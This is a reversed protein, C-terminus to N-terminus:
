SPSFTIKTDIIWVRVCNNVSMPLLNHTWWIRNWIGGEDVLPICSKGTGQLQSLGISHSCFHCMNRRLWVLTLVLLSRYKEGKSLNDPDDNLHYLRWGVGGVLAESESQPASNGVGTQRSYSHIYSIFMRKSRGSINQPKKMAVAYALKDQSIHCKNLFSLFPLISASYFFVYVIPPFVYAKSFKGEWLDSNMESKRVM